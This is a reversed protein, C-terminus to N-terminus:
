RPYKRIASGAPHSAVRSPYLPPIMVPRRITAAPPNQNMGAIFIACNQAKRRPTQVIAAPRVKRSVM